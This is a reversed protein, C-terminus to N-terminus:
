NQGISSKNCLPRWELKSWWSNWVNWSSKWTVWPKRWNLMELLFSKILLLLKYRICLIHIRIELRYFIVSVDAKWNEAVRWTVFVIVNLPLTIEHCCARSFKQLIIPSFNVFTFYHKPYSSRKEMCYYVLWIFLILSLMISYLNFKRGFM